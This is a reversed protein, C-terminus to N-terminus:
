FTVRVGGYVAIPLGPSATSPDTVGGPVNPWPVDGVPGFSGYTYYRKDLANNLVAFLTVADNPRYAANLDVVTYGGLPATLNAEDGFRYVSSQVIASAGVSLRSTLSYDAVLNGRHKPIGPIRDGPLVQENGNADAAPSNTNLLLPTQFTADTLAYGFRLHLRQRDYSLNAEMGRRRTRGANTYFALNPNYVTTEYIIDNTDETHYADFNWNLVHQSDGVRGRLGAEYTHAVVQNLNPDGVFFNLLSCPNAASACSLEEPTPARNTESYNAYFQLTATAHFILGASPNFRDYTHQGNVPGGLLDTLSIKADNYRGAVNLDLLPSVNLTDSLSIGYFNTESRVRVPNVGESPQDQIVGPYLFERSYPDFGGIEQFGAFISRSGDFSAGVVLRNGLSGLPTTESVQGSAGYAHSNLQQVSLGSYTAGNLFDKVPANNPGTVVTGDSNCLLGTGDGCPAVEETIGNPVIQNLTQFYGLGHLTTTSDLMFSGNVNFGLYNNDVTNPATFINSIDANLAQEPTAGPNGLTDHAATIALHLEAPGDRWGLDTYLRYLNSESTQRFGEDHTVDGVAYIGFDGFQRAFEMIGSARGYTGGYATLSTTPATFGNKMTVSLSGGLANLGFLPNAAELNVSAIASPPILDWNVTDGFADNFRAGNVYIAIGEPTGAVPSATFGRFLIDPQFGNGEADNVTVSPIDELIAGTLSPIGTRNIDTADLVRTSEVVSNPDVAPGQLPTVGVVVVPVGSGELMMNADITQDAHAGAALGLLVYLM